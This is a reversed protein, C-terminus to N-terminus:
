VTYWWGEESGKALGIGTLVYQTNHLAEKVGKERKQGGEGLVAYVRNVVLVAREKGRGLVDGSEM